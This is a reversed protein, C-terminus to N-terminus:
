FTTPVLPIVQCQFMFPERPMKLMMQVLLSSVMKKLGDTAWAYDKRKNDGLCYTPINGIVLDYQPWKYIPKGQPSKIASTVKARITVKHSPADYTLKKATVKGTRAGVEAYTADDSTYSDYEMTHNADTILPIAGFGNMFLSAKTVQQRNAPNLFIPEFRLGHMNLTSGETACYLHYSHDEILKFTTLPCEGKVLTEPEYTQVESPYDYDVM